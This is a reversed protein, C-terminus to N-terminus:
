ILNNFPKHILFYDYHGIIHTLGYSNLILTAKTRVHGTVIRIKIAKQKYKCLYMCVYVGIFQENGILPVIVNNYM